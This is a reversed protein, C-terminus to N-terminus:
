RIRKWRQKHSQQRTTQKPPSHENKRATYCQQFYAHTTSKDRWALELTVRSSIATSPKKSDRQTPKQLLYIYSDVNAIQTNNVNEIIVKTKSKNMKLGQNESENALEQLMQQLEHPINACTLWDDAFRRHSFYDGDIKLGTTEWTLRRFIREFPATFLKPSITDGQRVRRRINIKNSEKHLHVTM